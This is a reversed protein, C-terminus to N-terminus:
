YTQTWSCKLTLWWKIELLNADYYAQNEM